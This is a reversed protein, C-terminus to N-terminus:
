SHVCVAYGCKQLSNMLELVNLIIGSLTVITMAVVCCLDEMMQAEVYVGFLLIRVHRKRPQKQLISRLLEPIIVNKHFETAKQMAQYWFDENFLVREIFMEKPSWVVFDCYLTGTMTMQQQVQYYYSHGNDLYIENTKTQLLCSTKLDAFKEITINQLLYPCKVEVCGTGCCSCNVKADPSAGFQSLDPTICLGIDDLSLNDHSITQENKYAELANKEHIIGWETTKSKFTFKLPYCIQKILSLSPNSLSTRCVDNLKSATIRGARQHFWEKSNSQAKTTKNIEECEEETLHINVYESSLQLLQEYTLNIYEENYLQTYPNSIASERVELASAFPEVVRMLVSQSGAEEIQRLLTTLEEGVVPPISYQVKSVRPVNWLSRVDTCSTNTKSSNIYELTYLLAGIHSCVKGAGAMCTCHATEISGDIKCMIWVRLSPDNMRQSHKVNAIVVMYNNINIVGCKSVFGAEFYKYAHLSKFAKMQESTYYSTTLVLYSVIDMNNVPPFDAASYSLQSDKLSYPDMNNILSLKQTCRTAVEPHENELKIFYNSIR